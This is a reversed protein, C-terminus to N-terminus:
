QSVALAFPMAGLSIRLMVMNSNVDVVSLGGRVRDTVYVHRFFPHYAMERPQGMDHIEQIVGLQGPVLVALTGEQEQSVYIHNGSDLLRVPDYGVAIREQSTQSGLDFVSVTNDGQEAVYMRNASVMIGQPSAGTSLSGRVALSMPDLLLVKQSAALSVALLNREEIFKAYQPRFGVLSRAMISGSRLDMRSLYGSREDLLYANNGAPDITMFTPNDNLPVQFFNVIRYSSLDVAKVMRDGPTLVYLLEGAEARDIAIWAPRGKMGFSDVVRRNDGRIVFVTDIDPCSVYILDRPIQRLAPTASLMPYFGDLRALSEEVDWVFFLSRSDHSDLGLGEALSIVQVLPESLLTEWEGAINRVWAQTVTIRIKQYLGPPVQVGDLFIQGDDIITSDLATAARLLPLWLNDASIELKGIEMRVAPARSDKLALFANIRPSDGVKPQSVFGSSRRAFDQPLTCAGLLTLFLILTGFRFMNFVVAKMFCRQM